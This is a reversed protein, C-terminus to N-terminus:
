AASVAASKAAEAEQLARWMVKGTGSKPLADVFEVLRPVKYAAMEDRAWAILDDAALRDKWDARPVVVAKVTEGRYADRAGIICAEQVGPHRYLIAEVEAPWVKYGSANIMRKLRDVMFYYGDEDMRALDGTRFFRKGDHEIFADATKEPDNWYGQFVQPGHTIIEGVEGQAVETLTLPDVIRCDTDYMPIGLCQKKPRHVPNIHSPAITESLGYGEIFDLGWLDKMKQAIAEPMAAGGGSIYTLSSVDYRHLEPNGLFDIMMTPICTFNSVRYHAIAEAAVTRDWRPLIVNTGASYILGNMAQMGTVHFMPLVGLAVVDTRSGAWVSGGVLTHMVSRHTHICGKPKGTTGSTYPMVCWDDPGAEPPRPVHAAALADGWRTVSGSSAVAMPTRVFDPVVLDTSATLADSYTCVLAYTLTAVGGSESAMLPAIQPWVEQAAIVIRAGSDAAYHRLEETKLMLNVPVVFADARLIAYYAVAFQPSNQMDLLVRDGRAVGCHGQLWGALAEADRRLDAYTLISDYFVIAAKDPYRTASVELNYWLSTAPLELHHPHGPPWHRFHLPETARTSPATNM